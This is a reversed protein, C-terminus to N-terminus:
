SGAGTTITPQDCDGTDPGPGDTDDGRYTTLLTFTQGGDTSHIVDIETGQYQPTTVFSLYVFFLNGFNDFEASPDCCAAPLNDGGIGNAFERGAWTVGADTSTAGFLAAVGPNVDTPGLDPDRGTATNSAMFLRNPNTPDIAITGETQNGRMKSVNVLTEAAISVAMLARPELPEHSVTSTTAPMFGRRRRAATARRIISVTESGRANKSSM